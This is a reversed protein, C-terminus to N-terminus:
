VLRTKGTLLEQMMGEKVGVMKERKRCLAQLEEDMDSLIQAIAKQEKITPPLPIFVRRLHYPGFNPQAGGTILLDIQDKFYRSRLYHEMYGTDIGDLAKFRIVSTNMMLPLDIKRVVSTKCYSNGSSAMVFDGEDIEFHRYNNQFEKLTIHRDTKELDLIGSSQLNTVNIVKMGKRTFQWKRLGPGEQFWCYEPLNVIKWDEPFFGIDTKEFKDKRGLLAPRTKGTLLQQMTGKKIAEKKQILADLSRILEDVDSHADAIAQQEELTPPLPIVMDAIMEMRVSDVSSKATMGMVRDFFYTSFCLYFYYGNVTPSFDSMKYVRQHYDFKGNIYHFIKGTGVGDGATLVAEGDFSYSNISEVKASRVFFPYKGDLIKDETNKNGTGIKALEKVPVLKWDSPFSGFETKKEEVMLEM